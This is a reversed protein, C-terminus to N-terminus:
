STSKSVDNLNQFTIDIGPGHGQTSLAVKNRSKSEIEPIDITAPGETNLNQNTPSNFFPTPVVKNATIAAPLPVETAMIITADNADAIIERMSNDVLATQDEPDM